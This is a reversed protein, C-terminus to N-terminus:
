RSDNNGTRLEKEISAPLVQETRLFGSDGMGDLSSGVLLRRDRCLPRTIENRKPLVYGGADGVGGNFLFATQILEQVAQHTTM